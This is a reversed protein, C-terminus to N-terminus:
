VAAVAIVFAIPLGLLLWVLNGTFLALFGGIIACALALVALIFGLVPAFGKLYVPWLLVFTWVPNDAYPTQLLISTWLCGLALYIVIGLIIWSFANM